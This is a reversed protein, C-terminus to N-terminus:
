LEFEVYVATRYEFQVLPIGDLVPAVMAFGLPDFGILWRDALTWRLGLPRLDLFIGVSGAPDLVTDYALISPGLAVATRVFGDAFAFEGGVGVNYAGQTVELDLETAFWFDHEFQLYVGWGDWRYGAKLGPGGAGSVLSRDVIDSLLSVHGEAQLFAGSPREAAAPGSTVLALLALSLSLPAAGAPRLSSLHCPRAM